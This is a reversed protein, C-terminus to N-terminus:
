GDFHVYNIDLKNSFSLIDFKSSFGIVLIHNRTVKSNKTSCEFTDENELKVNNFIVNNIIDEDTLHDISIYTEKVYRRLIKPLNKLGHSIENDFLSFAKSIRRTDLESVPSSLSEKYFIYQTENDRIFRNCEFCLDDDGTSIKTFEGILPIDIKLLNKDPM